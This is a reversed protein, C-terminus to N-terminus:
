LGFRYSAKLFFFAGRAGMQVAQYPLIDHDYPLSVTSGYKTSLYANASARDRNFPAPIGEPAHGNDAATDINDPRVNFVNHAGAALLLGKTAQYTLLLDTATKPKFVLLYAGEGLGDFNFDYFAVQGFRTISVQGGLKGGEYSLKGILKSRPSGTTLLSLERQGVFNNGEVDDHQISQFSAPVQLSRLSTENFNAGASASVAGRGLPQAYRAVLDLGRTRTNVANAFFQVSTTNAAQLAMGLPSGTTDSFVNTLSIRNDIDIQYVDATLTLQKTPSLVLGASSNQSTEPALRSIGAVQAIASQNNFIGSYTTGGATPLLSLQSYLQQAQSPARFGTNYGARLALWDTARVRTNM